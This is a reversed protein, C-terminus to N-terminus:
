SCVRCEGDGSSVFAGRCLGDGVSRKAVILATWRGSASEAVFIYGISEDDVRLEGLAKIKSVLTEVPGDVDAVQEVISQTSERAHGLDTAHGHRSDLVGELM